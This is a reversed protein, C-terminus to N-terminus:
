GIVFRHLLLVAIAPCALVLGGVFPFRQSWIGILAPIAAIPGLVDMLLSLMGNAHPGNAAAPLEAAAPSARGPRRPEM